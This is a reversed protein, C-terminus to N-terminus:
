GLFYLIFDDYVLTFVSLWFLKINEMQYKNELIIHDDSLLLLGYFRLQAGDHNLSMAITFLLLLFLILSLFYLFHLILIHCPSKTRASVVTFISWDSINWYFLIFETTNSPSYDDESEIENKNKIRKSDNDVILVSLYLLTNHMALSM